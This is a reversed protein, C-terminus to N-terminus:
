FDFLGSTYQDEHYKLPSSYESYRPPPTLQLCTSLVAASYPLPSLRPSLIGSRPPAFRSVPVPVPQPAAPCPPHEARELPSSPPRSPIQPVPTAPTAPPRFDRVARLKSPRIPRILTIYTRSRRPATQRKPGSPQHPVPPDSQEDDIIIPNERTSGEAM